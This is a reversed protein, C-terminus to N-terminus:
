ADPTKSSSPPMPFRTPGHTSDCRRCTPWGNGGPPVYAARGQPLRRGGRGRTKEALRALKAALTETTEEGMERAFTRAVFEAAENIAKSPVALASSATGALVLGALIFLRLPSGSSHM